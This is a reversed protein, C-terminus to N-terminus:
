SEQLDMYPRIIHEDAQYITGDEAVVSGVALYTGYYDLKYSGAFNSRVSTPPDFVEEYPLVGYDSYVEIVAKTIGINFPNNINYYILYNGDHKSQECITDYEIMLTSNENPSEDKCFVRFTDLVTDPAESFFVSIMSQGVCLATLRGEADVAICNENTSKWLLEYEYGEPVNFTYPIKYSEGLPLLMEGININIEPMTGHEDVFSYSTLVEEVSNASIASTSPETSPIPEIVTAIQDIGFQVFISLFISLFAVILENIAKKKSGRETKFLQFLAVSILIVAFIVLIIVVATKLM